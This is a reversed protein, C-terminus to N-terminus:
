EDRWTTIHWYYLGGEHWGWSFDDDSCQENLYEIAEDAILYAHESDERCMEPTIREIIGFRDWGFDKAVEIVRMPAYLGHTEDVYCGLMGTTRTM